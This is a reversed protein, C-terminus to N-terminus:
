SPGLLEDLGTRKSCKKLSASNHIVKVGGWFFFIKSWIGYQFLLPVIGQNFCPHLQTGLAWHGRIRPCLLIGTDKQGAAGGVLSSWSVQIWLLREGGYTVHCTRSRVRWWERKYVNQLMKVSTQHKILPKHTNQPPPSHQKSKTQPTKHRNLHKGTIEPFLKQKQKLPSIAKFFSLSKIKLM